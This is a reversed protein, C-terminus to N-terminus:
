PDVEGLGLQDAFQWRQEGVLYQQVLFRAELAALQWAFFATRVRKKARKKAYTGATITDENTPQPQELIGKADKEDSM